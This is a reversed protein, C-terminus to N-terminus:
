DSETRPRGEIDLRDGLRTDDVPSVLSCNQFVVKRM